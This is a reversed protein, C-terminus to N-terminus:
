DCEDIIGNASAPGLKMRRGEGTCTYQFSRQLDRNLCWSVHRAIEEDPIPKGHVDKGRKIIPIEVTVTLKKM